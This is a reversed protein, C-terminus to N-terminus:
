FVDSDDLFGCMELTEEYYRAREFTARSVLEVKITTLPQKGKQCQIQQQFLDAM